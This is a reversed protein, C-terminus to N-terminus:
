GASVDTGILDTVAKCHSCKIELRKGPRLAHQEIKQLLRGCVACRVEDWRVSPDSGYDLQRTYLVM